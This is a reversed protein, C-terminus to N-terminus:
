IIPEVAPGGIWFHNEIQLQFLPSLAFILLLSFVVLNNSLKRQPPDFAM